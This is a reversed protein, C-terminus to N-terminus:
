NGKFVFSYGDSKFVWDMGRLLGESETIFVTLYHQLRQKNQSGRLARLHMTSLVCFKKINFSVTCM